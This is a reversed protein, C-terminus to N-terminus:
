FFEIKVRRDSTLYSSIEPYSSYDKMFQMLNPYNTLCDKHFHQFAELVVYMSCDAISIHDGVFWKGSNNKKLKEFCVLWKDEVAKMDGKAEKFINSWADASGDMIVDIKWEEDSNKGYLNLKKGLYRSIAGSQVIKNDGDVLLPISGYALSGDDIMKAKLEPWEDMKIRIDEYKVKGVELIHRIAEGRLRFNFYYLKMSSM